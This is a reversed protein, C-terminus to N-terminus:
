SIECEFPCIIVHLGGKPLIEYLTQEGRSSISAIKVALHSKIKQLIFQLSSISSNHM